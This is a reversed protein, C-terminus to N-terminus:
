ELGSDKLIDDDLKSSQNTLTNLHNEM